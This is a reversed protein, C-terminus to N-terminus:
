GDASSLQRFPHSVLTGGPLWVHAALGGLRARELTLRGGYLTVLEEVIALGLGSGSRREDLRAGRALAAERQEPTMGPGDDEIHLGAGGSEGVIELVVRREAWRLANDLLNGVLEQLDQPDMRVNAAEDIHRELVIGRRQALRALGDVVPAVVEGINVRGALTAGSAASARALHHRVAEDLRTVEQRVQERQADPLRDAVTHLVSIPTKLAHALNGAAARGREILRRDRELVENMAGALDSLEGPLRTDLREVQGAEVAELNAVLRRLPALGWRIQIALGGLLLGALAVLSLTLLWQFHAVEAELEERSAAVSVHLPYPHGPLRVDREIVRLPEGRPGILNRLTMGGAETVPLRQDWLSRSVRTTGHGDTIQWYWGSFVRDFRAEGLSLPLQLQHSAPDIELEALLVHLLSSLRQDFSATVAARFNYALGAGALPLVILVLMLAVALLRKGLAWGAPRAALARLRARM